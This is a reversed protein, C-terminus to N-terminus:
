FLVNMTTMVLDGTNPTKVFDTVCLFSIQKGEFFGFQGSQQM